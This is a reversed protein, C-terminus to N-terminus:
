WIDWNEQSLERWEDSAPAVLHFRYRMSVKTFNIVQDSDRYSTVNYILWEAKTRVQNDLNRTAQRATALRKNLEREAFERPIDPNDPMEKSMRAFFQDSRAQLAADTVDSSLLEGLALVDKEWRELRRRRKEVLPAVYVQWSLCDM